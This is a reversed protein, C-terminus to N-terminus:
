GCRLTCAIGGSGCRWSTPACSALTSSASCTWAHSAPELVARYEAPTYERVHWPNGSKAAGPAALTLRNPTSVYAVGGPSLLSAFRQLLPLPQEVHEVTQLFVIADWPAGADFDEIM